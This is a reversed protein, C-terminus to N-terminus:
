PTARATGLATEFGERCMAIFEEDPIPEDAQADEAMRVYDAKIALCRALLAPGLAHMAPGRRIDQYALKFLILNAAQAWRSLEPENAPRASPPPLRREPLLEKPSPFRKLNKRASECARKVEDIRLHKLSEWFVLTLRPTYPRNFALCLDEILTGFAADDTGKLV